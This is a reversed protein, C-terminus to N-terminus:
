FTFPPPTLLNPSPLGLPMRTCLWTPLRPVLQLNKTLWHMFKTTRRSFFILIVLFVGDDFNTEVSLSPAPAFGRKFLGRINVCCPQQRRRTGRRCGWRREPRAVRGETTAM